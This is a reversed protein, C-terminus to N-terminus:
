EVYVGVVQPQWITAEKTDARAKSKSGLSVERSKERLSVLKRAQSRKCNKNLPSGKWDMSAKEEGGSIYMELNGTDKKTRGYIEKEQLDTGSICAQILYSSSRMGSTLLVGKNGTDM